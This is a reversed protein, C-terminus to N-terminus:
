SSCRASQMSLLSKGGWLATLVPGVKHGGGERDRVYIRHTGFALWLGRAESRHCLLSDQVQLHPRAKLLSAGAEPEQPWM